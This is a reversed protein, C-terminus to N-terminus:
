ASSPMRSLTADRPSPSTYLLCTLPRGKKQAITNLYEIEEDSLALGETENYSAIDEILQISEPVIDITFIEQDLKTYTESLMPDYVDGHKSVSKYSEIRVVKNIGMNQMIEVANTSWPTIMTARPGIFADNIVEDSLLPKDSFLWELKEIDHDTFSDTLHLAFITDQTSGFFRIM